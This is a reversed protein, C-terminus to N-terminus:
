AEFAEAYMKTGNLLNKIQSIINDGNGHFHTALAAYQSTYMMGRSGTCIFNYLVIAVM